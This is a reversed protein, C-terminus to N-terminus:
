SAFILFSFNIHIMFVTSPSTDEKPESKIKFIFGFVKKKILLLFFVLNLSPTPSSADKKKVGFLDYKESTSSFSLIRSIEFSLLLFFFYIFPNEGFSM